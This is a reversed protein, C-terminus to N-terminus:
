STSRGPPTSAVGRAKVTDALYQQLIGGVRRRLSRDKLPAMVEVRRDLNRPMLAASGLYVEQRGGNHFYWIRSHELFRSVVSRVRIRESV